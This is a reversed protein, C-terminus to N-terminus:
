GHFKSTHCIFQMLDYQNRSVVDADIAAQLSAAVFPKTPPKVPLTKLCYLLGHMLHKMM